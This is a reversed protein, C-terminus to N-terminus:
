LTCTTLKQMQSVMVLIFVTFKSMLGFTGKHGKSEDQGWGGM